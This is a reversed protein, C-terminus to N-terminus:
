DSEMNASFLFDICIEDISVLINQPITTELLAKIDSDNKYKIFNKINLMEYVDIIYHSNVFHSQWRDLVKIIKRKCYAKNRGANIKDKNRKAWALSARRQYSPTKYVKVSDM